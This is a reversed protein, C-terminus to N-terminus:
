KIKKRNRRSIDKILIIADNQRQNVDKLRALLHMLSVSPKANESIDPIVPSHKFLRNPSPPLCSSPTVLPTRAACHKLINLCLYFLIARLVVHRNEGETNWQPSGGHLVRARIEPFVDPRAQQGTFQQNWPACRSHEGGGGGSQIRWSVREDRRYRGEPIWRM